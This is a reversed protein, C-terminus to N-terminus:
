MIILFLALFPIAPIGFITIFTLTIINIPIFLDLPTVMINYGYLIFASIIVRKLIVYIIKTM